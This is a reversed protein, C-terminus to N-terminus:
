LSQYNTPQVLIKQALGRGLALRQFELAIVVQGQGNNTIVEIEDGQRLGMTMLRMRASDGGTIDEIILREGPKAMDLPIVKNRDKLCHSCIGYIEMKHQLMHFGHTSSIKQQLRELDDNQFEYIKRCKTCIMHDHHQGLHRHEYRPVGNDFKNKQAFGYRCLLKLTDRVFGSSFEYGKQRLLEQLMELSVHSETQLFIELVVFRDDINDIHEQKFLTKFQDKERQHIQKM